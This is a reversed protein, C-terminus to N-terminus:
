LINSILESIVQNNYVEFSVEREQELIKNDQIFKKIEEYEIKDITKGCRWREIQEPIGGVAVALVPVRLVACEDITVPTGEYHSLLIFCDMQNLIPYPNNIFGLLIVVDSLYERQIRNKIHEYLTGDGIIYWQFSLGDKKLKKCINLIEDYNKENEVRGITIINIKNKDVIFPAVMKSKELIFNQEVLNPITVIKGLLNKYKKEMFDKCNESLVIIKDFDQYLMEDNKTICRTWSSYEMWMPYYTHIWQIKKVKKLKLICHRLGSAESVVIVSDFEQMITHWKSYFIKEYFLNILDFKRFVSFLVRILKDSYSINKDQIVQKLSKTLLTFREVYPNKIFQEQRFGMYEIPDSLSFFFVDCFKEMYKAQLLMSNRAGSVYNIDDFVYLIKKM